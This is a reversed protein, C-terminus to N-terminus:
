FFYQGLQFYKDQNSNIQHFSSRFRKELIEMEQDSFNKKLFSIKYQIDDLIM